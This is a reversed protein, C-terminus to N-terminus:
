ADPPRWYAATTAAAHARAWPTPAPQGAAQGVVRWGGPRVMARAPTDRASKSRAATNAPSCSSTNRRNATRRPNTAGSSAGTTTDAAAPAAGAGRGGIGLAGGARCSVSGDAATRGSCAWNTPMVRISGKGGCGAPASRRARSTQDSCIASGRWGPRTNWVSGKTRGRRRQGANRRDKTTGRKAPSSIGASLWRKALACGTTRNGCRSNLVQPSVRQTSRSM